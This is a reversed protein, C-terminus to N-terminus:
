SNNKIVTKTISQGLTISDMSTNLISKVNRIIWLQYLCINPIKPVDYM